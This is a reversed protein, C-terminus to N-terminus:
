QPTLVIRLLRTLVQENGDTAVNPSVDYGLEICLAPCISLMGVYPSGYSNTFDHQVITQSCAAGDYSDRLPAQIQFVELPIDVSSINNSAARSSSQHLGHTTTFISAAFGLFVAALRM